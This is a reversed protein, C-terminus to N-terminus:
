NAFESLLNWVDQESRNLQWCAADRAAAYTILACDWTRGPGEYYANERRVLWACLPCPQNGTQRYLYAIVRELDERPPHPAVPGLPLDDPPVAGWGLCSVNSLWALLEAKHQRLLQAFEPPCKGKPIVALKDGSPELRLGRKSAEAYLEPATV